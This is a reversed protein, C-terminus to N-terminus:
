LVRAGQAHFQDVTGRSKHSFGPLVYIFRLMGDAPGQVDLSKTLNNGFDGIMNALVPRTGDYLYTINRFPFGANADGCGGLLIM